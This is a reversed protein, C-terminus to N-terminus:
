LPRAKIKQLFANYYFPEFKSLFKQINYILTTTTPQSKLYQAFEKNGLKKTHTPKQDEESDSM